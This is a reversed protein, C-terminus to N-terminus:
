GSSMRPSSTSACGSAADLDAEVGHATERVAGAREFRLYHDTDIM